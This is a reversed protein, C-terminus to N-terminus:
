RAAKKAGTPADSERAAKAENRAGNVAHASASVTVTNDASPIAGFTPMAVAVDIRSSGCSM